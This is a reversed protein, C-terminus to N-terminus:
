TSLRHKNVFIETASSERFNTLPGNNTPYYFVCKDYVSIRSYYYYCYHLIAALADEALFPFSSYAAARERKRERQRERERERERLLLFLSKHGKLQMYYYVVVM